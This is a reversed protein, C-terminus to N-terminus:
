DKNKQLEYLKAYKLFAYRTNLSANIFGAWGNFIQRRLFYQRFFYWPPYFVLKLPSTRKGQQFKQKAALQSYQNIKEVKKSISTEGFHRIEANLKTSQGSTKVSEHVLDESVDSLSKNFLRVFHNMRVWNHSWKWFVWERRPLSYADFEPSKNKFEGIIKQGDDSMFEDSDLLLIWDYKALLIADKKQQSFGKFKQQKIVCNYKKIIQLTTDTSFSDMVVIEDAFGLSQLCKEITEENNLTTIVASIKIM